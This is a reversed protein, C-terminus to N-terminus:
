EKKGAATTSVATAPMGDDGREAHARPREKGGVTCAHSRALWLAEDRGPVGGQVTPLTTSFYSDLTALRLPMVTGSLLAACSASVM